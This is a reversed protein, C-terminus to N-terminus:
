NNKMWATVDKVNMEKTFGYCVVNPKGDEDYKKSIAINCSRKKCCNFCNTNKDIEMKIEM